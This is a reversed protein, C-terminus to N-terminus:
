AGDIHKDCISEQNSINENQERMIKADEGILKNFFTPTSYTMNALRGVYENFLMMDKFTEFKAMYFQDGMIDSFIFPYFGNFCVENRYTRLIDDNNFFYQKNNRRSACCCYYPKGKVISTKGFCVVDALVQYINASIGFNILDPTYGGPARINVEIGIYDGKSFYGPCDNDAVFYEAHFIRNKLGMSKIVRSGLKAFDDDINKDVYYFLDEGKEKVEFISPPFVMSDCVVVNSNSDCIGDFTRIYKSAVFTECIYPFKNNKNHFFENLEEINHIKYNGSAGVGTDPKIFLPYGFKEAFKLLDDYKDVIIYPAVKVGADEYYKKLNSKRQFDELQSPFIGSQINFHERIKADNQLWYENNSELYDIPGFENIICGVINYMVDLNEMENCCVYKTLCNRLEPLLNDEDTGGIAFVNAGNNRFAKAFQWYTQPFDPSILLVNKM